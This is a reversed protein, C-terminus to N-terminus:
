QASITLFVEDLSGHSASFSQIHQKFESLIELEVKTDGTIHFNKGDHTFDLSKGELFSIFTAPEDTEIELLPHSFQKKLEIPTGQAAIRGKNMICVSDCIEAEDMYHTTLFITTGHTKQVRRIYNWVAARAQPDLGATPEDLFLVAPDHVLARAIEVRRRM